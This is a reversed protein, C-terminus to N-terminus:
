RDLPHGCGRTHNGFVNGSRTSVPSLIPEHGIQLYDGEANYEGETGSTVTLSTDSASIDAVLEGTSSAPAEARKDDALKLIDKAVITVRGTRDPGTVQDMVYHRTQFDAIDFSDGIYGTKIRLARGQYYRNRAIMRAWFTGTVEPNYGRNAVYPDFGRDHHPFDDFTITISARQGLGKEPNNVTPTLAGAPHGHSQNKGGNWHHPRTTPLPVRKNYNDPDQCTVRTNFCALLGTAAIATAVTKQYVPLFDIETLQAGWVHYVDNEGDM